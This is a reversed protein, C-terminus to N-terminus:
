AQVYVTIRVQNVYVYGKPVLYKHAFTSKGSAPFGVFVIVEPSNDDPILPTNTPSFLPALLTCNALLIRNSIYSELDMLTNVM